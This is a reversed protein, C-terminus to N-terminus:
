REDHGDHRGAEDFHGGLIFEGNKQGPQHEGVDKQDRQDGEAHPNEIREPVERRGGEGPRREVGEQAFFPPQRRLLREIDELGDALRELRRVLRYISRWNAEVEQFDPHHLIAGLALVAVLVLAFLVYYTGHM